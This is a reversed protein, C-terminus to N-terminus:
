VMEIRFTQGSEFSVGRFVRDRFHERLERFISIPHGYREVRPFHVFMFHVISGRDAIAQSLQTSGRTPASVQFARLM